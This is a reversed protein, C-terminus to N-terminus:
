QKKIWVIQDGSGDVTRLIKKGDGSIFLTNKQLLGMKTENNYSKSVIGTVYFGNPFDQNTAPDENYAPVWKIDSVTYGSGNYLWKFALSNESLDLNRAKNERISEWSGYYSKPDTQIKIGLSAAKSTDAVSVAKITILQATEDNSVTLLGEKTITTGKAVPEVIVWNLTTDPKGEGKVVAKLQVSSGKFVSEPPSDISVNNIKANSCSILFSSFLFFASLNLSNM